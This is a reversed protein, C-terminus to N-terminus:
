SKQFLSLRPRGAKNTTPIPPNDVISRQLIEFKLETIPRYTRRWPHTTWMDVTRRASKTRNSIANSTMNYQAVLAAFQRQHEPQVYNILELEDLAEAGLVAMVEGPVDTELVAGHEEHERRLVDLTLTLPADYCDNNGLSKMNINKPNNTKDFCYYVTNRNPYVLIIKM